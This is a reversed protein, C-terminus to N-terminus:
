HCSPGLAVKTLQASGLTLRPFVVKFGIYHCSLDVAETCWVGVGM